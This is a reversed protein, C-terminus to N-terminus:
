FTQEVQSITFLLPCEIGEYRKLRNQYFLKVFYLVDEKTDRVEAKVWDWVRTPSFLFYDEFELLQGIVVEQDLDGDKLTVKLTWRRKAQTFRM